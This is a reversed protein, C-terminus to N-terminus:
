EQRRGMGEFKPLEKDYASIDTLTYVNNAKPQPEIVAPEYYNKFADVAANIATRLHSIEGAISGSTTNYSGTLYIKSLNFIEVTRDILDSATRVASGKLDNTTRRVRTLTNDVEDKIDKRLEKGSKPAYLLAFLGGAAAAAIILATNNQFRKGSQRSM